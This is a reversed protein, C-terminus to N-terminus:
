EKRMARFILGSQLVISLGAITGAFLALRPGQFWHVYASYVTLLVSAGIIIALGVKGALLSRPQQSYGDTPIANLWGLVTSFVLAAACLLATGM